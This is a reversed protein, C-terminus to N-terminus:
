PVPSAIVPQIESWTRGGDATSVFAIQGDARAVAWGTRPDVFSFQGDWNVQKLTTWSQGGNESVAIKKSLALATQPRFFAVQGGPYPQAQWTTGGDQTQYLYNHSTGMPDQSLVCRLALAGQSTSFLTPSSPTCAGGPDFLHPASAPPTLPQSTWTAGGDESIEVSAGDILGGCDRTIWGYSPDAFAMGNKPCSQIQDGGAELVQTWVRGGDDTRYLSFYDHMMGAGAHVILWGNQDDIFTMNSPDFFEFLSGIQLPQSAAWTQGGDHTSWVVPAAPIIHFQQYAYIVWATRSDAFAGAAVKAQGEEGRQEPPTVDAWTQGGDQTHLIHNRSGDSGGGIAWGSSVDSMHIESLMAAAGAPLHAIPPASSTATAPAPTATVTSPATPTPTATWPATATPPIPTPNPTAPLATATSCGALLGAMMLASGWRMALNRM